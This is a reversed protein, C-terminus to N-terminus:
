NNGASAQEQTIERHFDGLIDGYATVLEPGGEAHRRNLFLIWELDIAQTLQARAAEFQEFLSPEEDSRLEVPRQSDLRWADEAEHYAALLEAVAPDYLREAADAGAAVIDILEQREAFFLQDVEDLMAPKVREYTAHLNTPQMLYLRGVRYLERRMSVVAPMIEAPVGHHEADSSEFARAAWCAAAPDPYHEFV